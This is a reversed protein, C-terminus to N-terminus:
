LQAEEGPYLISASSASIATAVPVDARTETVILCRGSVLLRVRDLISLHIVTRIMIWGPMREGDQSMEPIRHQYGLTRWMRTILPPTYVSAFGQESM